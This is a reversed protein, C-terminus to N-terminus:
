DNKVLSIIRRSRSVVAAHLLHLRPPETGDGPQQLSRILSSPGSLWVLAGALGWILASHQCPMLNMAWILWDLTATNNMPAVWGGTNRFSNGLKAECQDAPSGPWENMNWNSSSQDYATTSGCRKACCVHWSILRCELKDPRILVTLNFAAPRSVQKSVSDILRVYIDQEQRFGSLLCFFLFFFTM